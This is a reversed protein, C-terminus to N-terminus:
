HVLKLRFRGNELRVVQGSNIHEDPGDFKGDRDWDFYIGDNLFNGDM